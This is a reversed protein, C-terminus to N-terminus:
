ASLRFKTVRSGCSAVYTGDPLAQSLAKLVVVSSPSALKRRALLRLAARRRELFQLFKDSAMPTELRAAKRTAGIL